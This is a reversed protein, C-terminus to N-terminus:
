FLDVRYWYCAWWLVNDCVVEEISNTFNFFSLKRPWYNSLMCGDRYGDTLPLVFFTALGLILILVISDSVPYAWKNAGTGFLCGYTLFSVWFLLLLLKPRFLPTMSSFDDSPKCLLFSILLLDATDTGSLLFLPGLWVEVRFFLDFSFPESSVLRSLRLLALLLLWLLISLWEGDPLRRRITLSM